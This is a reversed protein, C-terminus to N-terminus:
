ISLYQSDVGKRATTSLSKMRSIDDGYKKLLGTIKPVGEPASRNVIPETAEQDAESDIKACM